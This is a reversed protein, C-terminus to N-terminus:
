NDLVHFDRSELYIAQKESLTKLDVMFLCM